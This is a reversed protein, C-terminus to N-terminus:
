GGDRHRPGPPAARIAARALAPVNTVIGDVGMEALREIRDHEDVTWTNVALGLGHAREILAEDVFPDWPHLAVHGRAACSEPADPWSNLDFVLQGTPPGGLERVRDLTPPDFSSVLVRDGCSGLAREALLAVVRDAVELTHPVHDGGLDGPSNKIEVNVGMPRVGNHACADLAEALLLVSHPRDVSPTDWVTRQDHYWPDHHVILGGDAAPRVDLEVWDAGQEAAGVFAARTNEPHDASAGRHAIILLEGRETM